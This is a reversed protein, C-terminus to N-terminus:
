QAGRQPGSSAGAESSPMAPANFAHQLLARLARAHAGAFVVMVRPPQTTIADWSASAVLCGYAAFALYGAGSTLLRWIVNESLFWSGGLLVASLGLVWPVIMVLMALVFLPLLIPLMLVLILGELPGGANSKTLFKDSTASLWVCGGAVPVGVAILLTGVARAGDGVGGRAWCLLGLAAGVAGFAGWPVARRSARRGGSAARPPEAAAACQRIQAALDDRRRLAAAMLVQLSERDAARAIDPAAPGAGAEAPLVAAAAAATPTPAAVRGHYPNTWGFKAGCRTCHMHDCGGAKEIAVGCVPCGRAHEDVWQQTTQQGDAHELSSEPLAFEAECCPCGVQLLAERQRRVAGRREEALARSEKAKAAQAQSAEQLRRLCAYDRGREPASLCHGLLVPVALGVAVAFAWQSRGGVALLATALPAGCLVAATDGLRTSARSRWDARLRAAELDRAAGDAEAEAEAALHRLEEMEEAAVRQRVERQRAALCEATVFGGGTGCHPCPHWEQLGSDRNAMARLAADRANDDQREALSRCRELTQEADCPRMDALCVPCSLTTEPSGADELRSVNWNRVCTSCVTCGCYLRMWRKGTADLPPEEDLCVPCPQARSRVDAKRKRRFNELSRAMGHFLDSPVFGERGQSRGAWAKWSDRSAAAVHARSVVAPVSAPAASPRPQPERPLLAESESTGSFVRHLEAHDM